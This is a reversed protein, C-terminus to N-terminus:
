PRRRKGSATASVPDVAYSFYNDDFFVLNFKDTPKLRQLAMELGLKSQRLPEGSM